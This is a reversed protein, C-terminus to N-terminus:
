IDTKMVQHLHGFCSLNSMLLFHDEGSLDRPALSEWSIPLCAFDLRYLQLVLGNNLKIGMSWTTISVSCKNNLIDSLKISSRILSSRLFSAMSLTDVKKLHNKDFCTYVCSPLFFKHFVKSNTKVPFDILVGLLQLVSIKCSRFFEQQKLVYIEM